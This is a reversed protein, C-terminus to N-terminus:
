VCALELKNCNKRIKKVAPRIFHHEKNNKILIFGHKRYFSYLIKLDTGFANTAYLEIRVNHKDAFRVISRLVKTGYGLNRYKKRIKILELYLYPDEPDDTNYDLKLDQIIGIYM